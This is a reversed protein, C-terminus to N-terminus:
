RDLTYSKLKKHSYEQRDGFAKLVSSYVGKFRKQMGPEMKPVQEAKLTNFFNYYGMAASPKDFYLAIMFLTKAALIVLLDERSNDMMKKAKLSVEKIINLAEASKGGSKLVEALTLNLMVERWQNLPEYHFAQIAQLSEVALAFSTQVYTLSPTLSEAESKIIKLSKERDSVGKRWSSRFDTDGFYDPRKGGENTQFDSRETSAFGCSPCVLIKILNFDMGQFSSNLPVGYVTVGFINSIPKQTKPKLQRVLVPSSPGCVFCSQKRYQLSTNEDHPVWRDRSVQLSSSEEPNFETKKALLARDQKWAIGRRCWEIGQQALEKPMSCLGIYRNLFDTEKFSLSDDAAFIKLIEFFILYLDGAEMPPPPNLKAMYSNKITGLLAIKQKQNTIFSLAAKLPEFQNQDVIGDLVIAGILVEAYWYRQVDSLPGVVIASSEASVGSPLMDRQQRQWNMGLNAWRFLKARYNKTFNLKVALKELFDKEEAGVSWDSIAFSLLELYVEALIDKPLDTPIPREEIQGGELQNILEKQTENDEFLQIVTQFNEYESIALDGDAWILQMAVQAFWRKHDYSLENLVPM